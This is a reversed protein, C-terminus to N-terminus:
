GIETSVFLSIFEVSRSADLLATNTARATDAKVMCEVRNRLGLTM